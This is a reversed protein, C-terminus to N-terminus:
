CSVARGTEKGTESGKATGKLEIERGIERGTLGIKMRTVEKAVRMVIMNSRATLGVNIKAVM